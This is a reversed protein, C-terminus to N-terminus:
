DRNCIVRVTRSPESDGASEPRAGYDGKGHTVPVLLWAIMESAPQIGAARPQGASGPLGGLLASETFKFESAALAETNHDSDTVGPLAAPARAAVHIVPTDTGTVTGHGAALVVQFRGPPGIMIAHIMMTTDDSGTLCFGAQTRRRRARRSRSRRASPGGLSPGVTRSYHMCSAAAVPGARPLTVCSAARGGPGPPRRVEVSTVPVAQRAAPQLSSTCSELMASAHWHRPNAATQAPGPRAAARAREAGGMKEVLPAYLMEFAPTFDGALFGRELRDM